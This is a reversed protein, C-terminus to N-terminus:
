HARDITKRLWDMFNFFTLGGVVTVILFIYIVRVWGIIKEEFESGAISAVAHMRTKAFNESAGPHCNGCSKQLNDKHIM